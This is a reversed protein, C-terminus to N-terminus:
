TVFARLQEISRSAIKFWVVPLQNFVASGDVSGGSRYVGAPTLLADTVMTAFEVICYPNAAEM